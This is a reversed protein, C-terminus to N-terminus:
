VTPEEFIDCREFFYSLVALVAVEHEPDGRRGGGAYAHLEGFIRDPATQQDRLERYKERFSGAISEGLTPDHWGDFFEEVLKEKYRGVELLTASSRSLANAKLKEPSVPRIDTSDPAERRGVTLLVVRLKDFSLLELDRAAPGPGLLTGLDASKLNRMIGRLEELSWTNVDLPKHQARLDHLKQVAPAPLGRHDNHVFTWCRMREAWHAEAGLFDEDIKDLLTALDIAYPAYVQFVTKTSVLYGDCKHDGINGYPRVRQFDNPYAKEMLDAFWDQFENGGKKLFDREFVVDYWARTLEDM